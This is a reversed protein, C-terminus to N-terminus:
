HGMGNVPTVSSLPLHSWHPSAYLRGSTENHNNKIANIKALAEQKTLQGMVLQKYIDKISQM